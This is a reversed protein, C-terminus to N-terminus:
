IEVIFPDANTCQAHAEHALREFHAVMRRSTSSFFAYEDHFLEDPDVPNALQVMGCATCVVAALPYRKESPINEASLFRGAIPMMGFDIVEECAAGCILCAM